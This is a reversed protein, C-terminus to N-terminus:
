FLGLICQPKLAISMLVMPISYVRLTGVLEILSLITKFLGGVLRPNYQTLGTFIILLIKKFEKLFQLFAVLFNWGAFRCVM